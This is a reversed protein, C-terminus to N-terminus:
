LLLTLTHILFQQRHNFLFYESTLSKISDFNLDIFTNVKSLVLRKAIVKRMNTLEIDEFDPEYEPNVNANSTKNTALNTPAAKTEVVQTVNEVATVPAPTLKNKIIYEKVDIYNEM